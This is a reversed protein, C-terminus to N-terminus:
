WNEEDSISGDQMSTEQTLSTSSNLVCCPGSELKVFETEPSSYAKKRLDNM